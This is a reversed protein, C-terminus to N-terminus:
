IIYESNIPSLYSVVTSNKILWVNESENEAVNKYINLRFIRHRFLMYLIWLISVKSQGECILSMVALRLGLKKVYHIKYYVCPNCELNSIEEICKPKSSLYGFTCVSAPLQLSIFPKGDVLGFKSKKVMMNKFQNLRLIKCVIDKATYCTIVYDHLSETIKKIFRVTEIGRCSESVFLNSLNVVYKNEISHYGQHFFLVAIAIEGNIVQIAAFPTKNDQKSLHFYLRDSQRRGWEYGNELFSIVIKLDSNKHILKFGDSLQAQM